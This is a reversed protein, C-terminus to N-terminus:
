GDPAPTAQHFWIRWGDDHLRWLSSRHARRGGADTTFTLHVIGPALLVGSMDSVEIPATSGAARTLAEILSARDWLRGSAGIEAFEPDLLAELREASARVDPELLHVEGAIAARVSETADTM